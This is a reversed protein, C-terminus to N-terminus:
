TRTSRTNSELPGNRSTKRSSARDIPTHTSGLNGIDAVVYSGAPSNLTSVNINKDTQTTDSGARVNVDLPLPTEIYKAWNAFVKGKGKGTFDWIFGVRPAMNDRFNNLKLYSFHDSGYAQQYDWRLGGNIQLNKTLKFDEQIYFAQMNTNTSPAQLRFDRVRVSSLVLFPNV